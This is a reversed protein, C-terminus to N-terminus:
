VIWKGDRMVCYEDKVAKETFLVACNGGVRERFKNTIMMKTHYSVERPIIFMLVESDSPFLYLEDLKMMKCVSMVAEKDFRM